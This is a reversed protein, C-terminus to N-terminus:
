PAHRFVGVVKDVVRKWYSRADDPHGGVWMGLGFAVVGVIVTIMETGGALQPLIEEM